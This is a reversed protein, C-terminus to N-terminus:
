GIEVVPAAFGAAPPVQATIALQHTANQSHRFFFRRDGGLTLSATERSLFAGHLVYSLIRILKEDVPLPDVGGVARREVHEARGVALLDLKSKM